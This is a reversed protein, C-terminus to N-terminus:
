MGTLPQLLRAFLGKFHAPRESAVLCICGLEKDAIPTHEIEEGVGQIDGAFYTGTEDGYAGDLVLTLEGGAHGHEPMRRGAAIKLLRLDGTASGSLPLRHHMVGPGLRKWPITELSLGYRRAIPGPLRDHGTTLSPASLSPAAMATDRPRAPVAVGGHVPQNARAGLLCAGMLEMDALEARCAPCLALHASVVAALPEALGGAAYSMLTEAELHRTITTSM